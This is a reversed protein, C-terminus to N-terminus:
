EHEGVRTMSWTHSVENQSWKWRILKDVGGSMILTEKDEFLLRIRYPIDYQKIRYEARKILDIGTYHWISIMGSDDAIAIHEGGPSTTMSCRGSVGPVRREFVTQLDPYSRVHFFGDRDITMLIRDDADYCLDWICAGDPGQKIFTVSKKEVDFTALRGSSTAFVVVRGPEIQAVSTVMHRVGTWGEDSGADIAYLVRFPDTSVDLASFYRPGFYGVFVLQNKRDYTASMVMGGGEMPFSRLQNTAPNILGVESDTTGALVIGDAVEIVSVPGKM